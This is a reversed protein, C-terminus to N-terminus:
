APFRESVPIEYRDYLVLAYPHPRSTELFNNGAGSHRPRATGAGPEHYGQCQYEKPLSSPECGTLTALFNCATGSKSIV